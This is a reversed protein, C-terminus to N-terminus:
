LSTASMRRPTGRRISAFLAQCRAGYGRSVAFPQEGLERLLKALALTTPTKGAGGVHYNGICFFVPIDARIGTRVMRQATIAYIAGLPTLLRSISSPPRYWFAPERM